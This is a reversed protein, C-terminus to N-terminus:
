PAFKLTLNEGVDGAGYLPQTLEPNKTRGAIEYRSLGFLYTKEPDLQVDDRHHTILDRSFEICWKNDRWEGKALIDSRSGTPTRHTFQHRRTEGKYFQILSAKYAPEGKDGLRRLYMRQGGASKIAKAKRTKISSLIQFKDDAYGMPDTRNAKWFWIDAMYPASAYVSLDATDRDDMAWKLVFTDERDPGTEYMKKESNWVLPKHVRSEDPDQFEVKIYIKKDSYVAKLAIDINGKQERTVIQEALHWAADDADGDIVPPQDVKQAVITQAGHCPMALCILVMWIGVCRRHM